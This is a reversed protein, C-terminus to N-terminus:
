QREGTPEITVRVAGLGPLDAHLVVPPKVFIVGTLSGTTIINGSRLGGARRAGVNALWLLLRMPDGAPNGGVTDARVEGNISMIARQKFPDVDALALSRSGVILAGHNLQDAVHSSRSQSAWTVFRTDSVEIVPYVADVAIKVQELSYPSSQPPLDRGLRYAIEAEAGILNFREAPLNAEDQYLSTNAIAACAPEAGPSAAGVKWASIHDGLQSLVLDQIAYAEDLNGPRFSEPLAELWRRTRRAEILLSASRRLDDPTM